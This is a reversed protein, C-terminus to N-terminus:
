NKQIAAGDDTLYDYDKVKKKWDGYRYNLYNNYEKPVFFLEDYFSFEIREKLLKKPVKINWDIFTARKFLFNLIKKSIFLNLKKLFNSYFALCKFKIDHGKKYIIKNSLHSYILAIFMNKSSDVWRELFFYHKFDNKYFQINIEVDTSKKKICIKSQTSTVNFGQNYIKNSLDIITKDTPEKDPNVGIDIDNDWPIFSKDRISGLLTGSDLFYSINNDNLIKVVIILAKIWTKERINM